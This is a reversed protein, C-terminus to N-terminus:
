NIKLFNKVFEVSVKLDFILLNIYIFYLFTNLYKIRKTIFKEEVAM